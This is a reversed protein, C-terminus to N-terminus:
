NLKSQTTKIESFGSIPVLGCLLSLILSKHDFCQQKKYTILCYSFFFFVVFFGMSVGGVLKIQGETILIVTSTFFMSNVQNRQEM